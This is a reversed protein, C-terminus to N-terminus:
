QVVAALNTPAVLNSTTSKGQTLPHPYTYPTYYTTWSSAASCQYLVGEGGSGSQNWSGQDTAWYAVGPACTSPRASLPGTGVGCHPATACSLSGDFTVARGNDLTGQYYDQNETVDRSGSIVGSPNSPVPSYADGWEYIPELAQRPWACASGSACGTTANKTNNSGSGDSAFGGVLLDGQGRGPQDLCPYGTSASSNGDWNSGVGSFTSGCYGWGNPTATQAYTSNDNRMNHIGIVTRYGTGGGSSSSPITNGWVMATGSSLWLLNNIYNGPQATVSNGYVELARCGRERGGGGTPHTQVAPPAGSMNMINFRWVYKGGKTCDNGAGNNFTNNEVFLFNATGSGFGTSMTWSQDGVGLADNKCAGANYSRIGNNVSGAPSDYIGHDVVGATCGQFELLSSTAGPSYTASNIHVHDVRINQSNGQFQVIGDYKTSGSGGQFTIGALRFNTAPGATTILLLTNSSAYNDVIVTQNGGGQTTLSGAGLISFSTTSSPVTFNLSTTWGVGSPCAPITVTENAGAEKVAANIAAQVNALTCDAAGHSQAESRFPFLTSLILGFLLLKLIGNMLPM